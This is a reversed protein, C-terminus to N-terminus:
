RRPLRELGGLKGGLTKEWVMAQHLFVKRVNGADGHSLGGITIFMPAAVFLVYGGDKQNRRGLGINTKGALCVQNV